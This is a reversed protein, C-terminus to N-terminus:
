GNADDGNNHKDVTAEAVNEGTAISFFNGICFVGNKIRNNTKNDRKESVGDNVKDEVRNNADVLDLAGLWVERNGRIRSLNMDTM